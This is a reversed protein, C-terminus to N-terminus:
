HLIITTSRCYSKNKWLLNLAFHSINYFHFPFHGINLVFVAFLFLLIYFSTM